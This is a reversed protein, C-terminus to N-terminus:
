LLKDPTIPLDRIRKGTAHYIANAIAAAVGVIGIEGVGKAGLSGVYPDVEDVFFANIEPVDLNVPVHYEGLNANMIRANRRDVLTEETLAMGIGMVIGGKLQSEAAKRNIIRGCGFASVFRTVRVIGLDADVQVECFQAGFAHSSFRKFRSGGTEFDRGSLVLQMAREDAEPPLTERYAEISTRNYRRLVESYTESKSADSKIFIRNREVVVDAETAGYLPSRRDAIAIRLTEDRAAIAAERVAQGVSATGRSGGAVANPPLNTDGIEVRVSSVSLGLADAAIIALATYTGTGLDQAACEVQASGDALLRVRATAPSLHTPYTATAMGMGVLHRGERMSGPASARRSWGFKEAAQRYCEKLSKSSWPLNSEPDRDAHNRLRLEVPDIRLKYALEDLASELAFSGTSEGPARMPGPTNMNTKVLHLTAQLNKCAYLMPTIKTVAEPEDDFMSTPSTGDHLLAILRGDREAGLRVRQKTAARHSVSSFLQARTLQLKVPRNVERAAVAALPVHTHTFAKCGFAGGVFRSVVRINKPSINLSSALLSRVGNVWQSPEYVTLKDGDWAAITTHPEIPNHHEVPTTYTEDIQVASGAFSRAPNGRVKDTPKGDPGKMPYAGPLGDTLTAVVKEKAYTIRLLTAAYTARELTDAVVLAVHQDMYYIHDDQMPMYSQGAAGVPFPELVGLKPMNRYTLVGLVGPARETDRTDIDRIRGHAVTSGVFVAHAINEVPIEASYRASGTVKLYGDVRDHPKGIIENM